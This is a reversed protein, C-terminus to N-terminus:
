KYANEHVFILKVDAFSSNRGAVRLRRQELLRQSPEVFISDPQAILRIVVIAIWRRSADISRNVRTLASNIRWSGDYWTLWLPSLYATSILELNQQLRKHRLRRKARTPGDSERYSRLCM